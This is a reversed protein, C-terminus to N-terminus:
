AGAKPWSLWPESVSHTDPFKGGPLGVNVSPKTLGPGCYLAGCPGLTLPGLIARANPRFVLVDTDATIPREVGM